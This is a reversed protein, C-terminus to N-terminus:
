TRRSRIKIELWIDAQAGIFILPPVPGHQEM